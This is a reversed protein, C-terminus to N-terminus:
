LVNCSCGGLCGSSGGNPSSTQFQKQQPLKNNIQSVLDTFAEAVNIRAKENNLINYIIKLVLVLRRIFGDIFRHPIILTNSYIGKASTEMFTCNGWSRALQQGQDRGIVRDSELDCKNGKSLKGYWNSNSILLKFPFFITIIIHSVINRHSDHSRWRYRQRTFNTRKYRTFRFLNGPLYDFLSSSIWGRKEYIFRAHRCVTRYRCYGFDRAYM